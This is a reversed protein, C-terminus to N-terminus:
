HPKDAPWTADCPVLVATTPTAGVLQDLRSRVHEHDAIGHGTVDNATGLFLAVHPWYGPLFYNTVAFEKRVVLVDGPQLVQIVQDRIAPPLNPMHGPRVKVPAAGRGLAEQVAYVGRGIVDRGVQRTTRRGQVRMRTRVYTWLSPRLRDRLRDIIALLPALSPDDTAAHEFDAHHNDFYRTAQWLHWAHYPETLSKQVDDYMRPPIGYVPDPEDLKRRVVDDRHFTERLFRAADVLVAAAALAVLFQQPTASDIHEVDGWIEFVLEFLAIRAKWYSVQLQRINLEEVPTIYGRQAVVAPQYTVLAQAKLDAIYDALQVVTHTAATLQDSNMGDPRAPRFGATSERSSEAASDVVPQRRTSLRQVTRVVFPSSRCNQHLVM